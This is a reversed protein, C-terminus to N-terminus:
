ESRLSKAPNRLAAGLTQAAILLIMILALVGVAGLFPVPTLVVKTAYDNLWGTMIAYAIPTAALGATLLVPVYEKLFLRIIGGASAGVVRRIAIEKGRRRVSSSVLGLIGLLVIVLALVTATSAAKRLRLEVAYMHELTQDMFQYEFPAGPMLEAWKKQLIGVRQGINGPRIKFALYRYTPIFSQHLIVEPQVPGNMANFHFDRVVGSVMFPEPNGQLHILRGVADQPRQWGLAKAAKANLVVRTSDQAASQDPANFFVGAALPIGFTGAFHEDAILQETIIARSSDGGQPYLLGGGASFGNPINWTLTADSVEPMLAFVDRIATMKQVGARSWDRPLQASLVYEKNYGLKNSFFLAVQQTVIIAGVFVITATGFQFGVLGKRLVVREQMTGTKSKLADISSLSSLLTAPYLGALWGIFLAFALILVWGTIALATLAPLTTGLMESFLSRTFVYILLAVVTSGLSLLVSETLFQTRLQRRLGGLVKRIGIEKLRTYSRSVSLNIFNIVAMGLIFLAAFSLTYIMKRVTGENADLYYKTLLLPEVRLNNRINDPTNVQLLHGIPGALAEPKVGPQLELYSVIAGNGWDMNRGFYALNSAPVFIGNNNNDNFQTVSNRAPTKMVGTIRFPHSSGSFNDITLAQGVVDTRGFYKIAKDATIVVQFPSNLATRADGYLLPFGYVSLLTSDGLQISERFHADGRSVASTIGDWRYYNAVLGPYTAKLAPALGGLTTIEQGMHPDKWISRLFYQRDAHRLQHNVQKESWCYAAILLSFAIGMSLGVINIIAHFKSRAIHRVATKYYNALIGM